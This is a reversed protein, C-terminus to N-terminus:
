LKVIIAQATPLVLPKVGVNKCHEDIMARQAEFGPHGYDDHLLVGGSVLQPWLINLAHREPDEGNLDIHLWRIPTSFEMLTDHIPGKHFTVNPYDRLRAKIFGFVGDQEQYRLACKPAFFREDPGSWTDYLHFPIEKGISNLVAQSSGGRHSGCEVYVGAPLSTAHYATWGVVHYRWNVDPAYHNTILSDWAYYKPGGFIRLLEHTAYFLKSAISM